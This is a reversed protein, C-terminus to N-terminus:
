RTRARTSAVNGLENVVLSSSALGVKPHAGTSRTQLYTQRVHRAAVSYTQGM